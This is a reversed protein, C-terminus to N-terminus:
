GCHQSEPDRQVVGPMRRNNKALAFQPLFSPPFIVREIRPHSSLFDVVKKHDRLRASGFPLTRLGRILLWANM